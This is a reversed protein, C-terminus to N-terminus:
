VAREENGTDEGAVERIPTGNAAVQGGSLTGLGGATIPPRSRTITM